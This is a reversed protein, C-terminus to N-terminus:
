KADDDGLGLEFVREAGLEELKRDVFKGMSNYHEYTKNGLGFVQMVCHSMCVVHVCIIVASRQPNTCRCHTKHPASFCHQGLLVVLVTFDFYFKTCYVSEVMESSYRFIVSLKLKENVPMNLRELMTADRCAHLVM